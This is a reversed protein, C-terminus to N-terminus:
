PAAGCELLGGRCLDPPGLLVGAAQPGRMCKGGSYGVFTAGAALHINPVRPEEAAADVFVPM